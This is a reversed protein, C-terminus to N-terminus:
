QNNSQYISFVTVFYYFFFGELAKSPKKLHKKTWGVKLFGFTNTESNHLVLFELLDEFKHLQFWGTNPKKKRSFCNILVNIQSNSCILISVIM